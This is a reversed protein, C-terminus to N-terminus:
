EIETILKNLKNDVGFELKDICLIFDMSILNRMKKFIQLKNKMPKVFLQQKNSIFM